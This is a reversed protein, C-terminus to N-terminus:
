WPKGQYAKLGAEIVTFKSSRGHCARPRHGPEPPSSIPFTVMAAESDLAKTWTSTSHDPRRERHDRAVQL